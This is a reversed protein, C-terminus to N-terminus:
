FFGLADRHVGAENEPAMRWRVNEWYEPDHKWKGPPETGAQNLAAPIIDRVFGKM